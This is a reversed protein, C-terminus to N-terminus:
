VSLCVDVCLVHEVLLGATGKSCLSVGTCAATGLTLCGREQLMRGHKVSQKVACREYRNMFACTLSINFWEM